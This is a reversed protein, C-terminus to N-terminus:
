APMECPGVPRAPLSVIGPVALAARDLSSRVAPESPGALFLYERNRLHSIKGVREGRPNYIGIRAGVYRPYGIALCGVFGWPALM